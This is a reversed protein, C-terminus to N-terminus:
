CHRAVLPDLDVAECLWFSLKAEDLEVPVYSQSSFFGPHQRGVERYHGRLEDELSPDYLRFGGTGGDQEPEVVDSPSAGSRDAARVGSTQDLAGAEEALHVLRENGAHGVGGIELAGDAL